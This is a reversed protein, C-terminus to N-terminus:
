ETTIEAAEFEDREMEVLRITRPKAVERLLNDSEELHTRIAKIMQQFEESTSVAKITGDVMEQIHLVQKIESELAMIKELQTGLATTAKQMKDVHENLVSELQDKWSGGAQSIKEAENRTATILQQTEGHIGSSLENSLKGFSAQMAQLQETIANTAQGWQTSMSEQVSALQGTMGGTVKSLQETMSKQSAELLQAAQQATTNWGGTLVMQTQKLLEATEKSSATWETFMKELHAAFASENKEIEQASHQSLDHVATRISEAMKEPQPIYQRFAKDIAEGMLHGLEEASVSTGPVDAPLRILLRSEVYQDIHNLLLFRMYLTVALVSFPAWEILHANNDLWICPALVLLIFTGSLLANGIARRSQASALTALSQPSGGEAWATLLIYARYALPGSGKIEDARSRADSRGSLNMDEPLPDKKLSLFDMALWLWELIIFSWVIGVAYFVIQMGVSRAFVQNSYRSILYGLAIGILIVASINPGIRCKRKRSDRKIAM